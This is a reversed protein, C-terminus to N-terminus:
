ARRKKRGIFMRIAAESRGARRAITVYPIELDGARLVAAEYKQKASELEASATTIAELVQEREERLKEITTM